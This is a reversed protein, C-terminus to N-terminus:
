TGTQPIQVFGLPLGVLVTVIRSTSQLLAGAPIIRNTMYTFATATTPTVSYFGCAGVNSLGEASIQANSVLGHPASCTVTIIATDNASVSLVPLEVDYHVTGLLPAQADQELGVPLGTVQTSMNQGDESLLLVDSQIPLGTVPDTLNGISVARYNSEDALFPETSPYYVPVPDAPLTIARLNEQPRDYCQRCVLIYTNQLAAGRWEWQFQLSVRNHWIGCRQCIAFARPNSASTFARGSKSAYSM